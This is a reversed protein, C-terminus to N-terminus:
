RRRYLAFDEDSEVWEYARWAERFTDNQSYDEIYDYPANFFRKQSSIHVFVIDPKRTALDQGVTEQSFIEAELLEGSQQGSLKLNQIGPTMWMSPLRSGWDLEFENVLPFGSEILASMVLISRAKPEIAPNESEFNKIRRDFYTAGAHKTSVALVYRISMEYVPGLFGIGLLLIILNKSTRFYNYLKVLLVATLVIVMANVPYIHNPWGKFQAFFVGLNALAILFIVVYEPSIDKIKVKLYIKSVLALVLAIVMSDVLYAMIQWNTGVGAQYVVRAHKVIVFVYDPTIILISALYALGIFVMTYPEPRKFTQTRLLFLLYLECLAPILVFYPKLCIALAALIAITLVWIQPLKIRKARASILFIYPILLILMFHERQAFQAAPQITLVFTLSLLLAQAYPTKCREILKQSFILILAILSFVYIKLAVALSIGTANALIVPPINLWITLPPNVEYFDVYAKKGDVVQQAMYLIWDNDHSFYISFIYFTALTFIAAAALKAPWSILHDTPDLKMDPQRFM